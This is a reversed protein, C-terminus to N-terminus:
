GSEGTRQRVIVRPSPTGCAFSSKQGICARAARSYRLPLQHSCHRYPNKMLIHIIITRTIQIIMDPNSRPVRDSMVGSGEIFNVSCFNKRAEPIKECAHKKL